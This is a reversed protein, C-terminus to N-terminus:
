KGYEAVKLNRDASLDLPDAKEKDRTTKKLFHLSIM